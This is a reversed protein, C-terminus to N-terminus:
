RLSKLYAVSAVLRHEPITYYKRLTADSDAALRYGHKELFRRAKYNAAYTGVVMTSVSVASALGAEIHGMITGAVGTRQRDPLVYGHRILVTDGVQESGAVGVLASDIFGGWWTMRSAERDWAAEDMEPSEMTEPGLFEAYWLASTNIVELAAARDSPRLRRVELDTFRSRSIPSTNM